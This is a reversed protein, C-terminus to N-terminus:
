WLRGLNEGRSRPHAWKAAPTHHPPGIKGAHAPILGDGCRAKREIASKGRTLPSSGTAPRPSKQSRPNEGRSRPHAALRSSIKLSAKTKGAHAPILRSCWACGVGSWLKGRTLPSSGGAAAVAEARDGNEGRSRPHARAPGRAPPGRRTEGRSHPHAPAHSDRPRAGKTKGAHAPILRPRYQGNTELSQKGRTLPSLAM